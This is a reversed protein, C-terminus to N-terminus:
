EANKIIIRSIQIVFIVGRLTVVYFTFFLRPGWGWFILVRFLFLADYYM